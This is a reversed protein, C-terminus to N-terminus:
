FVYQAQLFGESLFADALDISEKANVEKLMDKRGNAVVSRVRGEAVWARATEHATALLQDHEM